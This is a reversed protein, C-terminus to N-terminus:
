CQEVSSALALRRGSEQLSDAVAGLVLVAPRAPSIVALQAEIRERGLASILQEIGEEARLRGETRELTKQDLPRVRIGEKELLAHTGQHLRRGQGALAAGVPQGPRDFVQF